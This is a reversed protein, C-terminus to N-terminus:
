IDIEIGAEKTGKRMIKEIKKINELKEKYNAAKNIISECNLKKREYESKIEDHFFDWFRLNEKKLIELVRKHAAYKYNDIDPKPGLLHNFAELLDPYHKKIVQETAAQAVIEVVDTGSPFNPWNAWNVSYKKIGSELSDIVGLGFLDWGTTAEFGQNIQNIYENIAKLEEIKYKSIGFGEYTVYHAIEHLMVVKAINKCFQIGTDNFYHQAIRAWFIEARSGISGHSTHYLGLIDFKDDYKSKPLNNLFENISIDSNMISFDSQHEAIARFGIECNSKSFDIKLGTVKQLKTLCKKQWKVDVSKVIENRLSKITEKIM